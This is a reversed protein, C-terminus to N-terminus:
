GKDECEKCKELSVPVCELGCVRVGFEDNAFTCKIEEKNIM